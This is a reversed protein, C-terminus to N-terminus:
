RGSWIKVIPKYPIKKEIYQDFSIGWECYDYIPGFLSNNKGEVTLIVGMVRELSMRSGRCTVCDLLCFFNYKDHLHEVFELTMVSMVGFIGHYSSKHSILLEENNTLKKLFLDEQNLDHPFIDFHWIRCTDCTEFFDIKQQLFIGDQLVVAKPFWKYKNFYYYPLLEGRKPFESQVVTCNDLEVTSKLFLPDSCDDIIVIHEQPYFVRIQKVCENWLFNSQESNVHRLVIFGFM